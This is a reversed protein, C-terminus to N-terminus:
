LREVLPFISFRSGNVLSRGPGPEISLLHWDKDSIGQKNAFYQMAAPTDIASDFGIVAVAFSDDGLAERATQVVKSLHVTTMPCIQYCSTYVMSLVLPKGRLQDLQVSKGRANVLAYNGLMKGIAGQSLALAKDYDFTQGVAANVPAAISQEIAEANPLMAMHLLLGCIPLNLRM